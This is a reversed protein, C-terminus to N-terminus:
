KLLEYQFLQTQIQTKYYTKLNDKLAEIKSNLTPYNYITNKGKEDKYSTNLEQIVQYTGYKLDSKYEKTQKAEALVEEWVKIIKEDQKNLTLTKLHESALTETDFCLENKYFRGDTGTFSICKNRQSLCTFIFCSKLFEADKTYRDGGDATTFYVDKEYWKEQPYLKACFLPLKEIYNDSRLYFGDGRFGTLRALVLHKYDISFAAAELHGIINENYFSRTRIKVSDKCVYGDGGCWTKIELDDSLKRKDYYESFTKYVKKVVVDKEYKIVGNNVQEQKDGTTKDLEIDYAKLTFEETKGNRQFGEGKLPPQTPDINQWWILSISSPTAHFHKRNLLYGEKFSKNVLGISKFYKVPSFVIYSDTPQRLYYKFASWIFQNAIDNSATGRMEKKVFSTRNTTAFETERGTTIDRYPPNELMIITMKPNNILSQLYENNIYEKSMADAKQLKGDRYDGYKEDVPIIHRVKHGLREKLVHYEYYEYTSLVCHSLEEDTLYEQLNGTGACRDLIVYDNGELVLKIAERVMQAALTCYPVPTYFAGLEKKSLRDNLTDMLYKFKENDKEKYPIILDKFHQPNRIEGDNPFLTHDKTGLFAGKTASPVDKYFRRAWGLICDENINIKTYNKERLVEILRVSGIETSYNIVEPKIPTNFNDNNISASGIYVTEIPTL